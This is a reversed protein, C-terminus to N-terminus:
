VLLYLGAAVMLLAMLQMTISIDWALTWNEHTLTYAFFPLPFKFDKPDHGLEWEHMIANCEDWVLWIGGLWALAGLIILLVGLM